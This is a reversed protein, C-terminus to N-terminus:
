EFVSQLEERGFRENIICKLFLNAPHGSFIHPVSVLGDETVLKKEFDYKAGGKILEVFARLEEDIHIELEDFRRGFGFDRLYRLTFRRQKRWFEGDRFFIGSVVNM